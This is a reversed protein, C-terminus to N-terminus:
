INDKVAKDINVIEADKWIRELSYFGRDEEHFIHIVIDGYDLLIWKGNHYGEKHRPIVDIKALQDEIEDCISKVQRISAGTTIIFYDCISSVKSIDLALIDEGHKDDIVQVIKEVLEMLKNDM